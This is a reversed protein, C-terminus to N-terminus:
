KASASGFIYINGKPHLNVHLFIKLDPSHSNCPENRSLKARLMNYYFYIYLIKKKGGVAKIGAPVITELCQLKDATLDM